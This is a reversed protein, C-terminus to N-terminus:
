QRAEVGTGWDRDPQANPSDHSDGTLGLYKEEVEKLIRKFSDSEPLTEGPPKLEELNSDGRMPVFIRQTEVTVAGHEPMAIAVLTAGLFTLILGPSASAIKVRAVPMTIDGDTTPERLKAVVFFAGILALTMGALFGLYAMWTRTLLGAQALAYRQRIVNWELELYAALEADTKAVEDIKISTLVKDIATTVEYMMRLQSSTLYVFAAAAVGVFAFAMTRGIEERSM